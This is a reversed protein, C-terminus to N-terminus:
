EAVLNPCRPPAKPPLGLGCSQGCETAVEKTDGEEVVRVGVAAILQELLSAWVNMLTITGQLRTIM